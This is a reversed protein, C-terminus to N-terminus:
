LSAELEAILGTLPGPIAFYVYAAQGGEARGYVRKRDVRGTLRLRELAAYVSQRDWARYGFGDECRAGHTWTPCHVVPSLEYLEGVTMERDGLHELAWAARAEASM